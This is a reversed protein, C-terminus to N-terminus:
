KIDKGLTWPTINLSYIQKNAACSYNVVYSTVFITRQYAPDPDSIVVVCLLPTIHRVSNLQIIFWLTFPTCYRLCYLQVIAWWIFTYFVEHFLLTLCYLQATVRLIFTNLVDFLLTTFYSMSYLQVVVWLTSTYCVKWLLVKCYRM